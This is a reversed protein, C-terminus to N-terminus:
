PYENMSVYTGTCVYVCMQVCTHVHMCAFLCMYVYVCIYVCRCICVRGCESGKPTDQSLQAQPEAGMFLETSYRQSLFPEFTQQQQDQSEKGGQCSKKLYVEGYVGESTARGYAKM